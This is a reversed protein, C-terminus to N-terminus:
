ELFQELVRSFVTVFWLCAFFDVLVLFQFNLVRKVPFYFAFLFDFDFLLEHSFLKLFSLLSLHFTWSFGEYFFM